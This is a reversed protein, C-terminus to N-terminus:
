MIAVGRGTTTRAATTGSCLTRARRGDEKVSSHAINPSMPNSLSSINNALRGLVSVRDINLSMSADEGM